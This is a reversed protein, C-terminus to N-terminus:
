MTHAQFHIYCAGRFGQYEDVLAIIDCVPLGCDSIYLYLPKIQSHIQYKM